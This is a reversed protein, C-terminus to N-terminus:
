GSNRSVTFNVIFFLMLVIIYFGWVGIKKQGYYEKVKDMGIVYVKIKNLRENQKVVYVSTM